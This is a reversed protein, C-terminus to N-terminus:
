IEGFGSEVFGQGIDSWSSWGSAIGRVIWGVEAGKDKSRGFSHPSFGLGEGVCVGDAKEVVSEISLESRGGM